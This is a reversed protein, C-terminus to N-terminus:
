QDNTPTCGEAEQEDTSEVMELTKNMQTLGLALIESQTEYDASRQYQMLRTSEVYVLLEFLRSLM